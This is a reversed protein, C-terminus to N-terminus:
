LMNLGSQQDIMLALNGDKFINRNVLKKDPGVKTHCIVSKLINASILIHTILKLTHIARAQYCTITYVCM